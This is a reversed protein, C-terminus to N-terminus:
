EAMNANSEYMVCGFDAKTFLTARYDSGDQAFAKTQAYEPLVVRKDGEDNWGTANWLMPIAGCKGLALDKEPSYESTARRWFKCTECTHM